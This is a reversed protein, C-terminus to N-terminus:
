AWDMDQTDFIWHVATPPDVMRLVESPDVQVGCTPEEPSFARVLTEHAPGALQVATPNTPENGAIAPVWSPDVQVVRLSGETKDSVEMEHAVLVFQTATPIALAPPAVESLVTFRVVQVGGVEIGLPVSRFPISQGSSVVQMPTPVL